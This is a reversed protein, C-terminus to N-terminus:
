ADGDDNSDQEPEVDFWREPPRLPVPPDTRPDVMGYLSPPDNFHIVASNLQEQTLGTAPFEGEGSFDTGSLNAFRFDADTLDASWFTASSLDASWFTAGNLDADMLHTHLLEAQTFHARPLRAGNLNAKHLKAGSFDTGRRLRLLSALSSVQPDTRHASSLDKGRLDAGKLDAGQFDLWFNNAAEIQMQREHCVAISDMATQVDERLKYNPGTDRWKFDSEAEVEMRRDLADDTTPRRVFSCLLRMIPIHYEGPREEALVHLAEIGILRDSLADSRLLEVGRQYQENLLSRRATDAQRDAVQARWVALPLAVLGAIVFGLNRITTSHSERGVETGVETGSLWGPDVVMVVAGAILGAGSLSLSLGLLHETFQKRAWGWLRTALHWGPPRWAHVWAGVAAIRSERGLWGPVWKKM